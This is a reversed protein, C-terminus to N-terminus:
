YEMAICGRRKVVRSSGMVRAVGRVGVGGCDSARVVRSRMGRGGVVLVVVVLGDELIPQKLGVLIGGKVM